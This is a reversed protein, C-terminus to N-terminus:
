GDPFSCVGGPALLFASGNYIMTNTDGRTLMADHSSIFSLANFGEKTNITDAYGQYLGAVSSREFVGAGWTSFNIMSDFGGQSYYEDYGVGKDWAEGTMWFDQQWDAGPKDPNNQRWEALADVCATKLQKWSSKEVHKATDCRFGDVGYKRVWEALWSTLYGTVTNSSGYKLNEVIKLANEVTEHTKIGKINVVAGIGCNDHEYRPDYLGKATATSENWQKSM